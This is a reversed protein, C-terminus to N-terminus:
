IAKCSCQKGNALRDIGRGLRKFLNGIVILIGLGYEDVNAVPNNNAMVYLSQHKVFDVMTDITMFRAVIPDYMRAGIDLWDLGLSKDLEKGNFTMYNNEVGNVNSNYGKHELGFPYYNKEDLIETLPDIDGNLDADSYSLRVNGLHDKYQYVYDFGGQGGPVVYGELHSFFQLQGNEYVFTALGTSAGVYDTTTLSSEGT